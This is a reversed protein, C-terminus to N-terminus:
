SAQEEDPVLEAIFNTFFTGALKKATGMILRSGLQAIKGTVAADVDYSLRTGNGGDIEELVVRASGSAGGAVGGTGSGSIVYSFPPNLDSLVVDGKFTASVPGIKLKVVASLETPSNQTLEQCGPIARELVEPNNLAEWVVAVPLPLEHSEKIEM